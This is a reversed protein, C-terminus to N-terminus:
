QVDTPPEEVVRRAIALAGASLQEIGSRIPLQQSAWARSAEVISHAVFEDGILVECVLADVQWVPQQADEMTLRLRIARGSVSYVAQNGLGLVAGDVGQAIGQADGFTSWGLLPSMQGRLSSPDATELRQM